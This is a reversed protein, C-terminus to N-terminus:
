SAAEGDLRKEEMSEVLILLKAFAQPDFFQSGMSAKGCVTTTHSIRAALGQLGAVQTKTTALKHKTQHTHTHTNSDFSGPM